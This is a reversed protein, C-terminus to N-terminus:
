KSSSLIQVPPNPETTTNSATQDGLQYYAVPAPSLSMPNTVATGGGYLTAVSNTGTAPLAYDFISVQDMKGTYGTTGLVGLYTPTNDYTVDGTRAQTKVAVGNIYIIQNSGDYVCAIHQWVNTALTTTMATGSWSTTKFFFHLYSNNIFIGINKSTGQSFLSIFGTISPINYWGSITFYKGALNISTGLDIKNSNTGDFDMSYNSVLSQNKNNPIRWADNFYETAM